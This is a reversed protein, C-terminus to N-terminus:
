SHLCYHSGVLGDDRAEEFGQVLTINIEDDIGVGRVTATCVMPLVSIDPINERSCIAADAPPM